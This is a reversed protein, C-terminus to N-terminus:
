MHGSHSQCMPLRHPKRYWLAVKRKSKLGISRDRLDIVNVRYFALHERKLMDKDEQKVKLVIHRPFTLSAHYEVQSGDTLTIM